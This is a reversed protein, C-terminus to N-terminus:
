TNKMLREKSNHNDLEIVTEFFLFHILLKSIGICDVSKKKRIGICDM